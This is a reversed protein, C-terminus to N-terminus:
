RKKEYKERDEEGLMRIVIKVVGNKRIILDTTQYKQFFKMREIAFERTEEDSFKLNSADIIIGGQNGRIQEFAHGISKYISKRSSVRKFEWNKGHWIADPSHVGKAKSEAKLLVNGGFNKVLWAGTERESDHSSNQVYGEEMTVIGEGPKASNLYEATVNKFNEPIPLEDQKRPKIESNTVRNIQEPLGMEKSFKKYEAYTSYRRQKAEYIDEKSAGGKKLLEIKEDQAKMRRELVRQRQTAEYPTYTKGDFEKTKQTNQYLTSLEEDTYRRVSVGYIFPDYTHYCNAGCLGTVEGLGCISVLQEKTYVKGQWLAHSPRATVHASVEFYETKLAKANDESIKETVQRLGTLVARRTAVDVRETRGSAYDITRIGSNAMKNVTRKLVTNYDFAGSAIDVTAQNLENRWFATLTQVEKGSPNTVFGLTKTINQIDEKGQELCANILQLLSENQELPIFDVGAAAYLAEDEAYGEAVIDKYLHEMQEDSLSLAKQVKKKIDSDFTRMQTAVFMQWDASRSIAWDGSFDKMLTMRRVIDDLIEQELNLFISELAKPVEKLKEESFM